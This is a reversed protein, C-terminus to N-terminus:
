KSKTFSQGYPRRFLRWDAASHSGFPQWIAALRGGFPRGFPRGFLRGFPEICLGIKVLFITLKGKKKKKKKLEFSGTNCSTKM